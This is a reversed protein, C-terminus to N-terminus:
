KLSNRFEVVVAEYVARKFDVVISPLSDLDVWDWSDFEAQHGKPPPNVTIESLDGTFLFAFWKQKQGRYKGKFAKGILDQPLDYYIWHDCEKLLTVSKMGTEEYLERYAASLPDEGKDIGGQPLQWLKSSTEAQKNKEILRHGVWVKGKSNFVVIGVNERYPLDYADVTKTMYNKMEIDLVIPM